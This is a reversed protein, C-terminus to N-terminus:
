VTASPADESQALLVQQKRELEELKCNALALDIQLKIERRLGEVKELLAAHREAAVKDASDLRVSIARLKPTVFDQMLKRTDEVWSM